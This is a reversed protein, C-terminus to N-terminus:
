RALDQNLIERIRDNVNSFVNINEIIQHLFDIAEISKQKTM